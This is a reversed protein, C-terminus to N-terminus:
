EISYLYGINTLCFSKSWAACDTVSASLVAEFLAVWSVGVVVVPSKTPWLMALLIVSWECCFSEFVPEFVSFNIYIDFIYLYIYM